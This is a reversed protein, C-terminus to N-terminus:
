GSISVLYDFVGDIASEFRESEEPAEQNLLIVASGVLACHLMNVASGPVALGAEQLLLTLNDVIEREFGIFWQTLEPDERSAVILSYLLHSRATDRLQKKFVAKLQALAKGNNVGDTVLAQLSDEMLELRIAEFTAKILEVRTPFYYTLHSQRLGAHEAVRAQSIGPLGVSRALEVAASLIRERANPDRSTSTM